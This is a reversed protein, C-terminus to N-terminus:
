RLRILNLDNVSVLNIRIFWAWMSDNIFGSRNGNLWNPVRCGLPSSPFSASEKEKETEEKSCIVSEQRFHREVRSFPWKTGSTLM